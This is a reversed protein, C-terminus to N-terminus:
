NEQESGMRTETVVTPSGDTEAFKIENGGHIIIFDFTLGNTM